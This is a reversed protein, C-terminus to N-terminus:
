LGSKGISQDKEDRIFIRIPPNVTPYDLNPRSLWPFLRPTQFFKGLRYGDTGGLLVAYVGPPCYNSHQSGSASTHDPMILVFKPRRKKLRSVISEVADSDTPPQYFMGRYETAPSVTVGKKIPPLKEQSGFYEIADGPHSKAEIWTGASYRSDNIMAYTLDIGRLFCIGWVCLAVGIVGVRLGTRRFQTALEVGRGLFVALIFGAPLVYRMQASRAVVFMFALYTLAMLALWASKPDKWITLIAGFIALLLGPLTMMDTLYGVIYRLFEINGEWTFPFTFAVPVNGKSIYDVRVIYFNVHAFFRGPDVFLGSGLGFAIFASLFGLLPIKLFKQASWNSSSSKEQWLALLIVFPVALFVGIASEKTGVALGMCVGLCSTQWATFGHSLGHTFAATAMAVFFLMPVDVNGTKSYYFMPYLIMVFLASFVGARRGWMVRGIEYASLVIGVAMFVTVLHAIYTLMKLTGVPDELGFPYMSSINTWKNTLWLYGLYPSYAGVVIFSYGLLYGLNRDAKPQIINHIEALPGLPTEDDVGWSHRLIDATAHPAGWWFGPSYLLVAGLFLLVMVRLDKEEFLFRGRFKELTTKQAPSTDTM